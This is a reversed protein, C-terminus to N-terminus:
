DQLPRIGNQNLKHVVWKPKNQFNANSKIHDIAQKKLNKITEKVSLEHEEVSRKTIIDDLWAPHNFDLKKDIQKQFITTDVLGHVKKLLCYYGTIIRRTLIFSCLTKTQEYFNIKGCAYHFDLKTIWIGGNNEESIKASRRLVLEEM